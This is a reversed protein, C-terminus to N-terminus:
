RKGGNKRRDDLNTVKSKGKGRKGEAETQKVVKGAAKFNFLQKLGM